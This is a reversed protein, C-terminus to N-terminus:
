IMTMTFLKSCDTSKDIAPLTFDFGCDKPLQPIRSPDYNGIDSLAQKACNCVDIREQKSKADDDLLKVGNCCEESPKANSGDSGRLYNLCPTIEKVVDSCAISSKQINADCRSILVVVIVVIFAFHRFM